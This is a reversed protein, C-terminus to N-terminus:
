AEEMDEDANKFLVSTSLISTAQTVRIFVAKQLFEIVNIVPM